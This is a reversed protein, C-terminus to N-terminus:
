CLTASCYMIQVLYIVTSPFYLLQCHLPGLVACASGRMDGTRAGGATNVRYVSSNQESATTTLYLWPVAGNAGQIASEPADIQASKNAAIILHSPTGSDLSFIPVGNEFYHHGLLTIDPISGNAWEETDNIYVKRRLRNRTNPLSVHSILSPLSLM